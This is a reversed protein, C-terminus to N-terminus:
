ELYNLVGEMESRFYDSFSKFILLLDIKQSGVRGGKTFLAFTVIEETNSAVKWRAQSKSISKQHRLNITFLDFCGLTHWYTM